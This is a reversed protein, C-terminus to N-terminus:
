RFTDEPFKYISEFGKSNISVVSFLFNDIIIGELTYENIKDTLKSYEWNPSSTKRWYIKYGIIDKNESGDWKFKVSPEVIGGIKLNKTPSTVM